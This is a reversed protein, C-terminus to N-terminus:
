HPLANLLYNPPLQVVLEAYLGPPSIVNVSIPYFSKFFKDILPKYLGKIIKLLILLTYHQVFYEVFYLDDDIKDFLNYFCNSATIYQPFHTNEIRDLDSETLNNPNDTGLPISESPTKPSPRNLLTQFLRDNILTHTTDSAIKADAEYYYQLTVCDHFPVITNADSISLKQISGYKTFSRLIM